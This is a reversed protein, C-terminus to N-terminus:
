RETAANVYATAVQHIAEVVAEPSTMQVNHGRVPSVWFSSQRSRTALERQWDLWQPGYTPSALVAIPMDGFQGPLAAPVCAQALTFLAPYERHANGALNRYADAKWLAYDRPAVQRQFQPREPFLPIIGFIEGPIRVFGLRSAWSLFVLVGRLAAFGKRVPGSDAVAEPTSDVLVLGAVREPFANAFARAILGGLSHGVLIYPGPAGIRDLLTSLDSVFGEATPAPGPDSSGLGPRDYAIVRAFRSVAAQIHVWSYSSGGAGAILVITPGSRGREVTHLRRGGVDVLRGPLVAQRDRTRMLAEYVVGIGALLGLVILAYM